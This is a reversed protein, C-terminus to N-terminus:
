VDLNSTKVFLKEDGRTRSRSFLVRIQICATLFLVGGISFVCIKHSLVGGRREMTILNRRRHRHAAFVLSLLTTAGSECAECDM